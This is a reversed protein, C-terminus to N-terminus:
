RAGRLAHSLSVRKEAAREIIAEADLEDEVLALLKQILEFRQYSVLVALPKQRRAIVVPEHTYHVRSVVEALAKRLESASMIELGRLAQARASEAARKPKSRPPM